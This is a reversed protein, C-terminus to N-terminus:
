DDTNVTIGHVEVVTSPMVTKDSKITLGITSALKFFANLSNLCETSASPGVFIFDDIIHSVRTVNFNNKLFWQLARSFTEFIAVSSSAGMPLVRDFYFNNEFKFGLKHYDLPSIPIIRFAEEIDAKALLSSKGASLVLSAVNDFNDLSVTSNERPITANVHMAHKPYSLDHIIRFSDTNKKPVVGLPSSVFNNLPPKSYPGKVRGKSVDSSIKSLVFKAHIAVSPHNICLRAPMVSTSGLSFGETFGRLLKLTVDNDYGLLLHVLTVINIPTPLSLPTKCRANNTHAQPSHKSITLNDAHNSVAVPGMHPAMATAAYM